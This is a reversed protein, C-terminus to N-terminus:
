DDTLLLTLEAEPGDAIAYLAVPKGTAPSTLPFVHFEGPRLRCGVQQPTLAAASGQNVVVDPAGARDGLGGSSNLVQVASVPPLPIEACVQGVSVVADGM